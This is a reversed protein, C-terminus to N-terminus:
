IVCFFSILLFGLSPKPSSPPQLTYFPSSCEGSLNYVRVSIARCSEITLHMAHVTKHTRATRTALISVRKWQNCSYSSNVPLMAFCTDYTLQQKWWSTSFTKKKEEVKEEKKRGKKKKAWSASFGPATTQKTSPVPTKGWWDIYHM